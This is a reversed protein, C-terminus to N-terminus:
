VAPSLDETSPAEGPLPGGTSLAQGAEGVEAEVAGSVSQSLVRAEFGTYPTGTPCKQLVTQVSLRQGCGRPSPGGDGRPRHHSILKEGKNGLRLSLVLTLTLSQHPTAPSLFLDGLFM